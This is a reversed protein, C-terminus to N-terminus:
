PHAHERYYSQLMMFEEETLASRETGYTAICYGALSGHTENALAGPHAGTANQMGRAELITEANEPHSCWQRLLDMENDDLISDNTDHRTIIEHALTHSAIMERVTPAM